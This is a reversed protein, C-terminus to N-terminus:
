KEKSDWSASLLGQIVCILFDGGLLWHKLVSTEAFFFFSTHTGEPPDTPDLVTQEANREM